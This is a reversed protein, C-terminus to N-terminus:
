GHSSEPTASNTTVSILWQLQVDKLQYKQDIAVLDHAENERSHLCRLDRGGRPKDSDGRNRKDAVANRVHRRREIETTQTTM